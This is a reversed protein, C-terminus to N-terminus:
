ASTRGWLSLPLAKLDTVLNICLSSDVAQFCEGVLYVPLARKLAQLPCRRGWLSCDSAASVLGKFSLM